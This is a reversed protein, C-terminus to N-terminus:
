EEIYQYFGKWYNNNQYAEKSGKPVYLKVASKYPIGSDGGPPTTAKIHVEEIKYCIAFANAYIGKIGSGITVFTLGGCGAFAEDRIYTVSNPIIISTLGECSHFASKGISTVSNPITISTLGRCASFVFDGISTVSSPITISTLGSCEHFASNGISTVSNPITISTLGRCASFVFDGISTVSNPITISTLGSCGSFAGEGISTVSNPITISTLEVCGSFASEGISTVSSPITYNNSKDYPFIVLRTKDKNTLVGDIDTYSINDPSVLINKLNVCFRFVNGSISTVSNPITISTLGTCYFFAYKGISTVSNPLILTHLYEFYSHFMSESITNAVTQEYRNGVDYRGGSVIFVESIDLYQLRSIKRLTEIDDGHIKGTITLEEINEFDSGLLTELRGAIEVHVTRAATKKGQQSITLTKVSNGTKITITASRDDYGTNDTTSVTINVTGAAGSSPSISCWFADGQPSSVAAVWEKNTTFTITQNNGGTTFNLESVIESVVDPETEKGTEDDSCGWLFSFGVILLVSFLYLSKKM